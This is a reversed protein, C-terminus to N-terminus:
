PSSSLAAAKAEFEPAVASPIGFISSRRGLSQQAADSLTHRAIRTPQWRVLRTIPVREHAVAHDVRNVQFVPDGIVTGIMLLNRECDDTIVHDGVRMTNVFADLKSAVGGADRNSKASGDRLLASKIASRSRLGSVDSQLGHGLAIISERLFTPVLAGKASRVMWMAAM